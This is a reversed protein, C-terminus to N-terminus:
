LMDGHRDNNNDGQHDPDVLDFDHSELELDMDADEDFAGLPSMATTHLSSYNDHSLNQSPNNNQNPIHSHDEDQDDQPQQQRNQMVHQMNTNNKSDDDRWKDMSRRRANMFFNGVTTPELGLQRAITVQMEKSPRKTEKFIAQLTRRQLDTFVLRPKKPQPMQEIQPEEKRRCNVVVNTSASLNAGAGSGVTCVPENLARPSMTSPGGHSDGDTTMDDRNDNTGTGASGLLGTTNSTGLTTMRQPIQAAAMRLASMRQFEPEQLWKYMRRFTERGSKLKSWPKPNRLLDSLTGQSRCLVRQAFIAQPISYRKLEASIRQALDKTNIEEMDTSNGSTRSSSGGGGGNKPSASIAIKACQQQINQFGNLLSSQQIGSVSSDPTVIDTAGGVEQQQSKSLLYQQSRHQGPSMRGSLKLGLASATDVDTISPPPPTPTLSVVVPLISNSGHKWDEDPKWDTPCISHVAEPTVQHNLHRSIQLRTSTTREQATINLRMKREPTLQFRDDLSHESPLHLRSERQSPMQLWTTGGNVDTVNDGGSIHDSYSFKEGHVDTDGSDGGSIHDSYSFKEGHVDTDGSDGGGSIHSSFTFKERERGGGSNDETNEQTALDKKNGKHTLEELHSPNPMRGSSTVVTAAHLDCSVLYNNPPPSIMSSLKEYSSYPSVGLGIHHHGGSMTMPLASSYSNCESSAGNGNVSVNGGGVVTESTTNTTAEVVVRGGEGNADTNDGSDGSGSIHGSYAFKESMTSIPPLPQIPTLTAYSTPSFGPPSLRDSVSTLTQYSSQSVLQGRDRIEDDDEDEVDGDPGGNGNDDEEDVDKESDQSNVIVGGAISHGMDLQGTRNHQLGLIAQGHGHAHLHHQHQHHHHSPLSYVQQHEDLLQQHHHQNLTVGEDDLNDGDSSIEDLDDVDAGLGVNVSSVDVHMRIRKNNARDLGSKTQVILLKSMTEPKVTTLEQPLITAQSMADVTLGDLSIDSAVFSDVPSSNIMRQDHHQDQQVMGFSMTRPQHLQQMQQHPVIQYTTTTQRDMEDIVMVVAASDPRARHKKESIITQMSLVDDADLDSGPGHGGAEQHSQSQHETIFETADQVLNQSFTPRSDIIQNISEM